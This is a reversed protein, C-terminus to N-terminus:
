KWYKAPGVKVAGGCKGAAPEGEGGQREGSIGGVEEEEEQGDGDGGRGSAESGEAAEADEDADEEQFESGSSEAAEESSAEGADADSAGGEEANAKGTRAEAAAAKNRGTDLCTIDIASGLVVAWGALCARVPRPAQLAAKKCESNELHSCRCVIFRALLANLCVRQRRRARPATPPAIRM